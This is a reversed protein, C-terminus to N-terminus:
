GAQRATRAAQWAFVIACAQSSLPNRAQEDIYRDTQRYIPKDIHSDTRAHM